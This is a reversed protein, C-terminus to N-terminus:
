EKRQAAPEYSRGRTPQRSPLSPSWSFQFSPPVFQGPVPPSRGRPSLQQGAACGSNTSPSLARQVSDSSSTGIPLQLSMPPGGAAPTTSTRSRGHVPIGALPPAGANAVGNPSSARPSVVLISNRPSLSGATNPAAASSGASVRQQTQQQVPQRWLEQVVQGRQIASPVTPSQDRQSLRPLPTILQARCPTMAGSPSFPRAAPARFSAASGVGSVDVDRAVQLSGVSGGQRQMGSPSAKRPSLMPPPTTVGSTGPVVVSQRTKIRQFGAASGPQSYGTSAQPVGSISVGAGRKGSKASPRVTRGGPASSSGGSIQMTPVEVSCGGRRSSTSSTASLMPLPPLPLNAQAQSKVQLSKVKAAAAAEAVAAAAAASAASAVPGKPPPESSGRIAASGPSVQRTAAAYGAAADGALQRTKRESSGCDTGVSEFDSKDLNLFDLAAQHHLSLESRLDAVEAYLESKATAAEASGGHLEQSQKQMGGQLKQLESRLAAEQEHAAAERSALAERAAALEVVFEEQRSMAFSEELRSESGLASLHREERRLDVGAAIRVLEREQAALRETKARLGSNEAQLRAVQSQLASREREVRAAETERSVDAKTKAKLVKNEAALRTTEAQLSSLEAKLQNQELQAESLKEELRRHELQVHENAQLEEHAARLQEVAQQHKAREESVMKLADDAATCAQGVTTEVEQREREQQKRLLSLECEATALLVRLQAERALVMDISDKETHAEDLSAPVYANGNNIPTDTKCSVDADSIVAAMAIGGTCDNSQAGDDGEKWLLLNCLNDMLHRQEDIEMHDIPKRPANQLSSRLERLIPILAKLPLDGSLRDSCALEAPAICERTPWGGSAVADSDSSLARSNAPPQFEVQVPRRAQSGGCLQGICQMELSSRAPLLLVASM